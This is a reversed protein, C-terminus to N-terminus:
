RVCIYVLYILYLIVMLAGAKRDLKGNKKSFLWVIGSFVLLVIDDIVNDRTMAVPSLVSAVGLIALINFLNSGVANGVAMDLEDKKAAAMSTALEPLSTGCAVITLGILTETVGFFKAIYVASDVVFDGGYKIAVAGGIIYVVSLWIPLIKIQEAELEEQQEAKTEKGEKRARMGRHLMSGLFFAFMVLFIVGAVFGIKGTAAGIGLLLASALMSFPLDKKVVDEDVTLPIILASAGLVVMLNFLNSGLVNSIALANSGKLSASVSVSLEPLSTGLAVITMGIVLSPIKFQKAVSSAGEVFYDAGKILFVFGILLFGIAMWMNRIDM